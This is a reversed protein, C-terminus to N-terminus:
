ILEPIILGYNGDHRRYVVNINGENPNYFVFFSHDLLEMQEIAEEASMPAMGFRKVRVIRGAVEEGGATLGEDAEAEMAELQAAFLEETDNSASRYRDILKGKYRSIQRYMKDFVADIATFLDGSREEGRLMAGKNDYLTVEVINRDNVDKTQERRLEVHAEGRDSRRLYRDLKGIKKEIYGELGETVEVNKGTVRIDM